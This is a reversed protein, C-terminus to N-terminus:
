CGPNVRAHRHSLLNISVADEVQVVLVPRVVPAKEKKAYSAWEKAYRGLNFKNMQIESETQFRM